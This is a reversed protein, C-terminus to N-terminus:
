RIHRQRINDAPVPKVASGEVAVIKPPQASKRPQAFAVKSEAAAADSSLQLSASSKEDAHSVFQNTQADNQPVKPQQFSTASSNSERNSGSQHYSNKAFIIQNEPQNVSQTTQYKKDRLSAQSTNNRYFRNSIVEEQEAEIRTEPVTKSLDREPVTDLESQTDCRQDSVFNNKSTPGSM